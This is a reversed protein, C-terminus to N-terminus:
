LRFTELESVIMNVALIVADNLQSAVPWSLAKQNSVFNRVYLDIDSIKKFVSKM